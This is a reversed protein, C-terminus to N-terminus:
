GGVGDVVLGSRALLITLTVTVPSLVTSIFVARAIDDPHNDFEMCLLLCNVSTPVATSILLVGAVLPDLGDGGAWRLMANLGWLMLVATAPAVVLRLLVAAAVLRTAPSAGFRAPEHRAPTDPTPPIPGVRGPESTSRWSVTALKAGLTALAVVIFGGKMFVVTDWFPRLAAAVEPAAEGLWRGVLLTLAAATLAYIPPFKVVHLLDRRLGSRWAADRSGGGGAGGAAALVVGFTFSTVNQVIMAFVQLAAAASSLSESGGTPTTSGDRGIDRYALEQLPLGYNGSNYFIVSMVLAPLRDRGVGLVAGTALAIGGWVGMALLTFGVMVGVHRPDVESSVLSFYVMAPVVVYFNLRTLTPGDLGLGRQVAYGVGMVLLLPLLITYAVQGLDILVSM